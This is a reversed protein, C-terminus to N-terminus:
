PLEELTPGLQSLCSGVVRIQSRSFISTVRNNPASFTFQRVVLSHLRRLIGSARLTTTCVRRDLTRM